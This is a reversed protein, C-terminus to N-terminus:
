EDDDDDDQLAALKRARLLDGMSHYNGKRKSEFEAHKAEPTPLGSSPASAMAGSDSADADADADSDAPASVEVRPCELGHVHAHTHTATPAVFMASPSSISSQNSRHRGASAAAAQGEDREDDSEWDALDRQRRSLAEASIDDLRDGLTLDSPMTGAAANVSMPSHPGDMDLAAPSRAAAATYFPTKPEDIKM